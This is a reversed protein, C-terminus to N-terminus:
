HNFLEKEKEPDIDKKERKDLFYDLLIGVVIAGVFAAYVKWDFQIVLSLSIIIALIPLIPVKGVSLPVKFPRDKDPAKFRLVILAINVAVFVLLARSRCSQMSESGTRLFGLSWRPFQESSSEKELLKEATTNVALDSIAGGWEPCSNDSPSRVTAKGFGRDSLTHLIAPPSHPHHSM